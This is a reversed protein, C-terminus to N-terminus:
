KGEPRDKQEKRGAGRFRDLDHFDVVVLDFQLQRLIADAQHVTIAEVVVAGQDRFAESVALRRGQHKGFVLVSGGLTM